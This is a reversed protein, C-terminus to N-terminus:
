EGSGKQTVKHIVYDIVDGGRATGGHLDYSWTFWPEIGDGNADRAVDVVYWPLLKREFAELAALEVANLGSTDGNVLASAFCAPGTVTDCEITMTHDGITSQQRKAVSM